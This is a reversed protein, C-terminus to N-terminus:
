GALVLLGKNMVSQSNIPIKATILSPNLTAKPNTIHKTQLLILFIKFHLSVGKISM